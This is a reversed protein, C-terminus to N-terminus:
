QEIRRRFFRAFKRLLISAGVLLAIGVLPPLILFTVAGVFIGGAERGMGYIALHAVFYWLLALVTLSGLVVAATSLVAQVAIKVRAKTPLREPTRPAAPTDEM